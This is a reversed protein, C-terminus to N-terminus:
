VVQEGSLSRLRTTKIGVKEVSGLFDGVALFDGVVFPKDLVISLSAFLDGLINQAALAVAIGGIGLGAILPTVHLDSNELVLLIVATWIVVRLVFALLDLAAVAGPDHRLEFKRRRALFAGLAATGWFGAQFLLAAVLVRRVLVGVAAPWVLFQSAVLLALLVLFWGKTAGVAADAMQLAVVDERSAALMKIRSRITRHAVSLAFWVGAFVALATAWALVSNGVLEYALWGGADAEAQEMRAGSSPACARKRRDRSRASNC